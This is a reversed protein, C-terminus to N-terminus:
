CGGSSWDMRANCSPRMEISNNYQEPFSLRDSELLLDGHPYAGCFGDVWSLM